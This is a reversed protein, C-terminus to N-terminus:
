RSRRSSRRPSSTALAKKGSRTIAAEESGLYSAVVRDNHRIEDPTGEAIVRGTELAYMRDCLAMLLPMDHEVILVCCDLEDRIQRLLPGFAEAERQAVGATPEDLLLVKPRAAVQAALECVRRTGTSLEATRSDAWPQLGFRAVLEDAEKRVRREGAKVWPAGVMASVVGVKHRQAIVVQLTETVTLGAFLTADQFSRSLGHAARIDAPLDVVEAGFLCVSGRAPRIVGSIVNMLTTKGAGNAGILGVVEGRRVSVDPEDLAVVGGFRVSVGTVQLPLGPDAADRTGHMRETRRDLYSAAAGARRIVGSIGTVPTAAGTGDASIVGGIEDVRVSASAGPTLSVVDPTFDEAVTEADVHPTGARRDLYRQWAAQAAGALGTPLELLTFTVGAGALFLSFGLNQGFSGFLGAVHPGVFFTGGYLVVAAAVAGWVSGLGGIVPIAIIALSVDATFHLPTVSKWADAWLVGAVGAFFGSVALIALKVTAPSAGFAASARENDRVALFQRGPNSRRLAAASLVALVLVVLAVYYIAVESSPTGLGPGLRPPEVTMGFPKDSGVWSQHFLWDTSIVALGLTTVALTLGRVRLAPLGVLVMVGAGLVGTLLFLSTLSWHASLHATVYAGLGLVAFNGLSVQGGWGLLMTLGVGVVAFILVLSLLFRNGTTSFYPLHPIVLAVLLAGAVLWKRHHRVLATNRLSAPVRTVPIDEVASGSTQFVRGIARGRVLVILLILVFVALEAKPASSTSAAVLQNVLGILLGGALAGPLSVFAGFAAAGLTVLLLNPGLSAVNFSAQTPAQLVASVAAFGGALAWTVASVRRVSIGSLRAADPNNAAARIQKGLVSYRMFAALGVVLIPVLIATLVYMGTLTVDGIRLSSQFPQPYLTTKSTDPGIKPIYTLALLLQSVGISLLLLRIPSNSRARLPAVLFREVVLGTIIGVVIAVAYAVWWNWGWDIVWKAVLLASLAGLQAHALNLFRNSKYVLVLGVALLGITLGNLVGLVGAGVSM